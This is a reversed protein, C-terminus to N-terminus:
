KSVCASNIRKHSLSGANSCGFDPLDGKSASLFMPMLRLSILGLRRILTGAMALFKLFFISLAIEQSDSPEVCPIRAFKAYRRNDQENQSSHMDPDDGTVILLGAEMGTMSAYFVSDAAM